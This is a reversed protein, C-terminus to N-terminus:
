VTGDSGENKVQITIESRITEIGSVDQIKHCENRWLGWIFLNVVCVQVRLSKPSLSLSILPRRVLDDSIWRYLRHILSSKSSREPNIVM